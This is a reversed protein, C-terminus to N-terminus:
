PTREQRLRPMEGNRWEYGSWRSLHRGRHNPTKNCVLRTAWIEEPVEKTWSGCHTRGSAGM